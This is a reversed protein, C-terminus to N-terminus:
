SIIAHTLTFTAATPRECGRGGGRGADEFARCCCLGPAAALAVAAPRTGAHAPAQAMITRCHMNGGTDGCASLGSAVSASTEWPRSSDAIRSGVIADSRWGKPSTLRTGDEAACCTVAAELAQPVRRTDAM